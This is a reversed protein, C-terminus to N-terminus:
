DLNDWFSCLLQNKHQCLKRHKPWDQEQCKKSCYWVGLCGGCKRLHAEPTRCWMDRFSVQRQCGECKQRLRDQKKEWYCKTKSQMCAYREPTCPSVEFYVKGFLHVDFIISEIAPRSNTLTPEFNHLIVEFHKNHLKWFSPIKHYTVTDKKEDQLVQYSTPVYRHLAFSLHLLQKTQGLKTGVSANFKAQLNVTTTTGDADQFVSKLASRKMGSWERLDERDGVPQLKM